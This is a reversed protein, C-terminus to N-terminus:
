DMHGHRIATLPHGHIPHSHLTYALAVANWVIDLEYFDDSFFVNLFDQGKYTTEQITALANRMEPLRQRIISLNVLLMGSNFYLRGGALVVQACVVNPYAHDVEYLKKQHRKTM